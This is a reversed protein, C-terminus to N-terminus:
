VAVALRSSAFAYLQDDVVILERFRAALPDSQLWIAADGVPIKTENVRRVADVPLLSIGAAAARSRVLELSARLQEVTGTVLFGAIVDKAIELRDRRYAATDRASWSGYAAPTCRGRTRECWVHLALHNVQANYQFGADLANSTLIWPILERLGNVEAPVGFAEREQLIYRLHSVSRALPDRTLTFYHMRRGRIEPPFVRVNHASAVLVRPDHLATDWLVDPPLDYTPYLGAFGPVLGALMANRLWDSVATGACKPIHVQLLVDPGGM